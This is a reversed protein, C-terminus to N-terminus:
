LTLIRMVMAAGRLDTLYTRYEDSTPPLGILDYFTRRILTAKEAPKAWKLGKSALKGRVFGDIPNEDKTIRIENNSKLTQWAWHKMRGKLDFGSEASRQPTGAPSEPWYAGRRIWEALVKRQEESLRGKPPMQLDKDEYSVARMLLSQEPHGAAVAPGRSGGKRIGAGSDLSLGSTAMGSSSHCPACQEILLPRVRKEFFESDPEGQSFAIAFPSALFLCFTVVITGAAGCWRARVLPTDM